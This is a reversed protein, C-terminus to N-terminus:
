PARKRGLRFFKMVNDLDTAGMQHIRSRHPQALFETAVGLLHFVSFRAGFFRDLNQALEGSPPVATPM